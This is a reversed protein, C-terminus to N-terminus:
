NNYLIVEAIQDQVALVLIEAGTPIEEENQSKAKIERTVGNIKVKIIGTGEGPIRLYVKGSKGEAQHFNWNVESQLNLLLKLFYSLIVVAIAGAGLGVIVTLIPNASAELMLKTAYAGIALFTLGSKVIGLGGADVDTDGGLDFDLDLGGLLSLILLLLLM